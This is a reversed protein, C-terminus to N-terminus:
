LSDLCVFLCLCFFVIFSFRILFHLDPYYRVGPNFIFVYWCRILSSNQNALHLKCSFVALSTSATYFLFFLTLQVDSTVMYLRCNFVLGSSTLRGFIVAEMKPYAGRLPRVGAVFSHLSSGSCARALVVVSLSFYILIQTQERERERVCVREREREWVCM